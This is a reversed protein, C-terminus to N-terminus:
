WSCTTPLTRHTYSVAIDRSGEGSKTQITKKLVGQINFCKIDATEGSTWIKVDNLCTVNSLNFHGPRIKNLVKPVDLLERVSSNIEMLTTSFPTFKGFLRCLEKREIQKPIFKPMLINVKTPLKSFEENKSSSHITPSVENSEELENLALLTKQVLSQSQKIEDLHKKFLSHHKVKIENIEKEMQNITNDVERHIEERQKSMETTLKKYEGDLSAIQMELENAIEEYTPSIQNELEQRDKQIHKKSKMFLEELKLYEHGKHQTSVTCDSCVFINCDKCQYKCDEKQHTQCKPYILTSKRQQIPIILMNKKIIM